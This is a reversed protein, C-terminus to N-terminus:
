CSIFICGVCSLKAKKLKSTWARWAKERLDRRDSYTLFPEVLSRSLTIVYGSKGREVAAQQATDVISSPLGTMDSLELDITYTSEDSM